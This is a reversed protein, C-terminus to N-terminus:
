ARSMGRRLLLWCALLLVLGIALLLFAQWAERIEGRLMVDQILVIGNTVPILYAAIRVPDSFESIPLVFGSFFVSALLVLLSLQVAQRESDSVISILLGLGLSAVILLGVVGALQLPTGLMPVGLGYILLALSALAIVACLFGFGLIKGAVVEWASVPSIRFLEIVGSTRERVVSLAILTVAMHQLVLALVAPGYYGAVTPVIPALNTIVAETPEAIVAPPIQKANPLGQEAANAQGEEAARRIIEQNISAAFQDAMLGAYAAQVPDALDVQVEIQSQKGSEFTQRANQPAIAVVEVNGAELEPTAQSADSVVSVIELGPGSLQRYVEVDTPLQSSPPIVVITPLPKKYGSYGLGFVAMVLFPGFVLSALAGPRRKVEVLERGIFAFLRTIIKALGIFPNM